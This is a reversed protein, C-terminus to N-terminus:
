LKVFDPLLFVVYCLGSYNLKRVQMIVTVYGTDDM